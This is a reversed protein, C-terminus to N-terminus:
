LSAGFHGRVVTDLSKDLFAAEVSSAVVLTDAVFSAVSLCTSVVWGSYSFFYLCLPQVPNLLDVERVFNFLDFLVTFPDLSLPFTVNKDLGQPDEPQLDLISGHLDAANEPDFMLKTPDKPTLGPDLGIESPDQPELGFFLVSPDLDSDVGLETPDEPDLDLRTLNDPDRGHAGELSPDGAVESPDM